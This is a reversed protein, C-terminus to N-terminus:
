GTAVTLPNCCYPAQDVEKACKQQILKNIAEAVFDKHKLSSANNKALFPPCPRAFPLRYGNDIIDLVFKSADLKDHWFQGATHINGAM